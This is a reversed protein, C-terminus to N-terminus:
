LLCASMFYLTYVFCIVHYSSILLVLIFLLQEWLYTKRLRKSEWDFPLVQYASMGSLLVFRLM